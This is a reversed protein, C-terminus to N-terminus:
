KQGQYIEIDLQILNRKGDMFYRPEGTATETYPVYIGDRLTMLKIDDNDNISKHNGLSIEVGPNQHEIQELTINELMENISDETFGPPMVITSDNIQGIGGTGNQPNSVM